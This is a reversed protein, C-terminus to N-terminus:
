NDYDPYVLECKVLGMYEARDLKRATNEYSRLGDFTFAETAYVHSGTFYALALNGTETDIEVHKFGDGGATLRLMKERKGNIDQNRAYSM